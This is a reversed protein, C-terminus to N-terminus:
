NKFKVFYALIAKQYSFTIICGKDDVPSLTVCVNNKQEDVTYFDIRGKETENLEVWLIKFYSESKGNYITILMNDSNFCIVDNTSGEFVKNNKEMPYNYATIRFPTFWQQEAHLTNIYISSILLLLTLILKKNM